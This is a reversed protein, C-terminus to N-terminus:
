LTYWINRCLVAEQRVLRKRDDLCKGTKAIVMARHPHLVNYPLKSAAAVCKLAHLRVVQAADRVL